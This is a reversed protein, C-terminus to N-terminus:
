GLEDFLRSMCPKFRLQSLVDSISRTSSPSLVSVTSTPLRFQRLLRVGPLLPLEIPVGGLGVPLLLEFLLLFILLLFLDTLLFLM